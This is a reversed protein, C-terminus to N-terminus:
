TSIKYRLSHMGSRPLTSSVLFVDGVGLVLVQGGM